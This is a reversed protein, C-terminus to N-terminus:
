KANWRELYERRENVKEDSQTITNLRDKGKRWATCWRYIWTAPLLYPRNNLFSYQPVYRMNAYSPFINSLIMLLKTLVRGRNSKMFRNSISASLNQADGFGFVGNKLIRETAETQFSDDLPLTGIPSSIGFWYEILAYCTQAFPLLELKELENKVWQWNIQGNGVLVALDM